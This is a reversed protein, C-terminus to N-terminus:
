DDDDGMHNLHRALREIDEPLFIRRNGLRLGPEPVQGSTLLYTIRHPPVHLTKAVDGLLRFASCDTTFQDRM